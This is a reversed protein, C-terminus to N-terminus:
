WLDRKPTCAQHVRRALNICWLEVGIPVPEGSTLHGTIMEATAFLDRRVTEPTEIIM